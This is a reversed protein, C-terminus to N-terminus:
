DRARRPLFGVCSEGFAFCLCLANATSWAVSLSSPRPLENAWSRCFSIYFLSLHLHILHKLLPFFVIQTKCLNKELISFNVIIEYFKVTELLECLFASEGEM